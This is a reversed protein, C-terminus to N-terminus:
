LSFTFLFLSVPWRGTMFRTEMLSEKDTAGAKSAETKEKKMHQKEAREEQSLCFHRNALLAPQAVADKEAIYRNDRGGLNGKEHSQPKEKEVISGMPVMSRAKQESDKRSSM